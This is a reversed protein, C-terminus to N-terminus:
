PETAQKADILLRFAVPYRQVAGGGKLRSEIILYYIRNKDGRKLSGIPLEATVVSDNGSAAKWDTKSEGDPTVARYELEGDPHQGELNVKLTFGDNILEVDSLSVKEVRNGVVTVPLKVTAENFTATITTKGPKVATFIGPKGPETKLIAPDDSVLEANVPKPSAGAHASYITLPPLTQGVQISIESPDARLIAERGDAPVVTIKLPQSKITGIAAIIQFNGPSTAVITPPQHKVVTDSGNEGSEKSEPTQKIAIRPMSIDKLDTTVRDTLDQRTGGGTPIGWLKYARTEGVSMPAESLELVISQFRNAVESVVVSVPNSILDKYQARLTVQGPKVGRVRGGSSITVKDAESLPEVLLQVSENTVDKEDSDSVIKIKYEATAGVTIEGPGSMVLQIDLGPEDGDKAMGPEGKLMADISNRPDVTV